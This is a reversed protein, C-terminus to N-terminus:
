QAEEWVYADFMKGLYGYIPGTDRTNASTHFRAMTDAEGFTRYEHRAISKNTKRNYLKLVYHSM